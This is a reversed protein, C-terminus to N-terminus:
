ELRCHDGLIAFCVTGQVAESLVMNVKAQRALRRLVQGVDDGQFERCEWEATKLPRTLRPCHRLPRHLPAAPATGPKAAPFAAQVPAQLLLMPPNNDAPKIPQPSQAPVPPAPNTQAQALSLVSLFAAAAVGAQQKFHLLWLHFHYLHQGGSFCSASWGTVNGAVVTYLAL